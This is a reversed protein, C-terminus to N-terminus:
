PGVQVDRTAGPPSYLWRFARMGSPQSAATYRPQGTASVGAARVVTVEWSYEREPDEASPAHEEGLRVLTTRTFLSEVPQDEDLRRLRVAYLENEQLLNVATWQLPVLSDVLIAGDPPSLLAPAAYRPIPTPSANPDATPTPTSTPEGCPIQLVQNVQLRTFEVQPNATAIINFPVGYKEAIGLGTEGQAVVHLIPCEPTGTPADSGATPVPGPTLTAAPILLLDSPRILGGPACKQPNLSELLELSIAYTTAISICTEGTRVQHVRPPIPTFTRTPLLTESPKPPRTPRTTVTATSTPTATGSPGTTQLRLLWGVLIIFALVTIIGAILGRWPMRRPPQEVEEHLEVEVDLAIGCMLCTTALNAVRAGCEPCHRLEGSEPLPPTQTVEEM